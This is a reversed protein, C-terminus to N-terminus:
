THHTKGSKCNQNRVGYETGQSCSLRDLSCRHSDPQQYTCNMPPKSSVSRIHGTVATTQCVSFGQISFFVFCFFGLFNFYMFILFLTELLSPSQSPSWSPTQSTFISLCVSLYVSLCVPLCVSLCSAHRNLSSPQCRLREGM